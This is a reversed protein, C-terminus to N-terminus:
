NRYIKILNIRKGLSSPFNLVLGLFITGLLLLDRNQNLLHNILKGFCFFRNPRRWKTYNPAFNIFLILYLCNSHLLYFFLNLPFNSFPWTAKESNPNKSMKPNCASNKLNKSNKFNKFDGFNKFNKYNKFLPLNTQLLKSYTRNFIPTKSNKIPKIKELLPPKDKLSNSNFSLEATPLKSMKVLQFLPLPKLAFAKSKNYGPPNNKM